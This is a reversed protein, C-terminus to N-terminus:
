PCPPTLDSADLSRVADGPGCPAGTIPYTTQPEECAAMSLAVPMLLLVLGRRCAKGRM